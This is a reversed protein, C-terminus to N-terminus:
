EARLEAFVSAERARLTKPPLLRVEEIGMKSTERNARKLISYEGYIWRMDDLEM